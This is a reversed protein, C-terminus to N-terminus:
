GPKEAGLELHAFSELVTTMLLDKAFKKGKSLSRRRIQFIEQRKM